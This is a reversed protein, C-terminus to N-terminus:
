SPIFVGRMSELAALEAEHKYRELESAMMENLGAHVVSGANEIMHAGESGPHWVRRAFARRGTLPDVWSLFQNPPHPEILYKRHEPGWLGTGYNVFPAYSVDTAVPAAYATATGHLERRTPKRYWSTALNGTRVPTFAVIFEHLRDGGKDAMRWLARTLPAEAFVEELKPGFYFVEAQGGLVKV